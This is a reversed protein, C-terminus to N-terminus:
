KVIAHALFVTGLSMVVSLAMYVFAVFSSGNKILDFTEYAFTSFTTFGGCVGVQLFLVLNPNVNESKGAAATIIGIVFAGIINILLTKIPFGSNLKFPVLGALYRLIAGAFGGAGVLLIKMM